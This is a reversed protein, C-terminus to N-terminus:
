KCKVMSGNLVYFLEYSKQDSSVAAILAGESSSKIKYEKQTIIYSDNKMSIPNKIKIGVREFQEISSPYTEYNDDYYKEMYKKVKISNFDIEREARGSDSFSRKFEGICVPYYEDSYAGEFGQKRCKLVLVALSDKYTYAGFIDTIKAPIELVSKGNIIISSYYDYFGYENEVKNIDFNVDEVSLEPISINNVELMGYFSDSVSSSDFLYMQKYSKDFLNSIDELSQGDNEEDAVRLEKSFSNNENSLIFLQSYGAGTDTTYYMLSFYRGDSSFGIIAPDAGVYVAYLMCM